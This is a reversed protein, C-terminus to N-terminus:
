LFISKTYLWNLFVKSFIESRAQVTFVASMDIYEVEIPVSPVKVLLRAFFLYLYHMYIRSAQAYFHVNHKINRPVNDLNIM